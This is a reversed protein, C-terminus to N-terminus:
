KNQGFTNTIIRKRREKTYECIYEPVCQFSGTEIYRIPPCNGCAEEKGFSCNKCEEPELIEEILKPLRNWANLFGEKLPETYPVEFTNCGTMRGQWNISYMCKGALCKINKPAIEFGTRKSSRNGFYVAEQQREKNQEMFFELYKESFDIAQKPSLRCEEVETSVTSFSRHVQQNIKYNKTYKMALHFIQEMDAVNDQIYTTRIELNTKVTKLRELGEITQEFAEETGCVKKYTEKSAGYLTVGIETPPYKEFLKQLRKNILTGNTYITIIFGMKTLATYIEEFHPHLIPEGGTVLLYLTGAKLAQQGLEIWQDASLESGKEDEQKKTHRVYCMKCSLNCRSTLEFTGNVPVHLSACHAMWTEKEAEYRKVQENHEYLEEKSKM